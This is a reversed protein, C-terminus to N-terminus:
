RRGSLIQNLATRDAARGRTPPPCAHTLRNFARSLHGNLTLRPLSPFGACYFQLFANVSDSVAWIHGEGVRRQGTKGPETADTALKSRVVPGGTYIPSVM